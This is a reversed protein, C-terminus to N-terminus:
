KRSVREDCWRIFQKLRHYYGDITSQSVEGKRANLYMKKAREPTYAQARGSENQGGSCGIPTPVSRAAM